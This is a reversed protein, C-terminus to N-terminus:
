RELDPELPGEVDGDRRRQQDDECRQQRGDRDGDLQGVTARHQEALLPHTAVADLELDELETRHADVGFGLQCGQPGPLVLPRAWQELEGDVRADGLDSPQDPREAEVLQRLQEVHQAAVHAQDARPRRQRGLDGLEGVLQLGPWWTRGPM